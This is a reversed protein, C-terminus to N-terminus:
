VTVDYDASCRICLCVNPTCNIWTSHIFKLMFTNQLTAQKMITLSNTHIEKPTHLQTSNAFHVNMPSHLAARLVHSFFTFVVMVIFSHYTHAIDHRAATAKNSYLIREIYLPFGRFASHITLSDRTNLLNNQRNSFTFFGIEFDKLIACAYGKSKM